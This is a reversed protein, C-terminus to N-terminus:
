EGKLYADLYDIRDNGWFMKDGIFFTPAGFAGRRAAESTEERLRDKIEQWFEQVGEVWGKEWTRWGENPIFNGPVTEEMGM